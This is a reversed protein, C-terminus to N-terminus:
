LREWPTWEVDAGVPIRAPRVLEVAPQPNENRVLVIAWACLMLLALVGIWIWCAIGAKGGFLEFWGISPLAAGPVHVHIAPIFHFWTQFDYVWAAIAVLWIITKRATKM